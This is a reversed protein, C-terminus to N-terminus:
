TFKEPGLHSFQPRETRPTEKQAEFCDAVNVINFKGGSRRSFPWEPCFSFKLSGHLPCINPPECSLGHTSAALCRLTESSRRSVCISEDSGIKWSTRSSNHNIRLLCRGYWRKLPNEPSAYFTCRPLREHSNFARLRNECGCCTESAEHAFVVVILEDLSHHWENVQKKNKERSAM